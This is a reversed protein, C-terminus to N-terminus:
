FMIMTQQGCWGEGCGESAFRIQLGELQAVTKTIKEGMLANQGM